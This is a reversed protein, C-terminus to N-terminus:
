RRNVAWTGTQPCNAACAWTGSIRTATFSGTFNVNLSVLLDGPGPNPPPPIMLTFSVSGAGVTGSIAYPGM